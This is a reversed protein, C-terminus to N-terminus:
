SGGYFNLINLIKPAIQINDGYKLFLIGITSVISMAIIYKTRDKYNKSQHLNIIDMVSVILLLLYFIM